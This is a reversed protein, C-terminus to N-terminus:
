NIKDIPHINPSKFTYGKYWYFREWKSDTTLVIYKKDFDIDQQRVFHLTAGDVISFEHMKFDYSSVLSFAENIISNEFQIITITNLYKEIFDRVKDYSYVENFVFHNFIFNLTEIITFNSTYIDYGNQILSDWLIKIQEHKYLDLSKDNEDFLHIFIGSDVFFDM